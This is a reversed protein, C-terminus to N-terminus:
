VTADVYDEDTPSYGESVIMFNPFGSAGSKQNGYLVTDGDARFMACVSIRGRDEYKPDSFDIGTMWSVNQPFRELVTLYARHKRENEILKKTKRRKKEYATKLLRLDSSKMKEAEAVKRSAASLDLRAEEAAKIRGSLVDKMQKLTLSIAEAFREQDNDYFREAGLLFTHNMDPHPEGKESIPIFDVVLPEALRDHEGLRSASFKYMRTLAEEITTGEEVVLRM